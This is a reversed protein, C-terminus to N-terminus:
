SQPCNQIEQRLRTRQDPTLIQLLQKGRDSGELDRLGQLQQKQEATLDLGLLAARVCERRDTASPAAPSPITQGIPSTAQPQSQCGTLGLLLLFLFNIGWLATKRGPIFM